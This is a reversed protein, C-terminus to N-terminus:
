FARNYTNIPTLVCDSLEWGWNTAKLTGNRCLLTHGILITSLLLLHPTELQFAGLSSNVKKQSMKMMSMYRFTDLSMCTDKGKYLMLVFMEGAKSIQDQTADPTKFINLFTCDNEQLM